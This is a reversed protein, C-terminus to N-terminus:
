DIDGYAKTNRDPKVTMLKDLVKRSFAMGGLGYVTDTPFAIM